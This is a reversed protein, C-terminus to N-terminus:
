VLGSNEVARDFAAANVPDALASMAAADEIRESHFLPSEVM